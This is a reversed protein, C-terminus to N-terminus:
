FGLEVLNHQEILKACHKMAAIARTKITEFCDPPDGNPKRDTVLLLGVFAVFFVTQQCISL